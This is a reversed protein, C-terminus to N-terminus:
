KHLNFKEHLTRVADEMQKQDILLWITTNSDASQLIAIHHETLAAVINAMVGPQGNMGGGIVSVKACNPRVSVRINHDQLLRVALTTYQEQVTFNIQSQTVHIFDISIAHDALLQFVQLPLELQQKSQEQESCEEMTVTFQTLGNFHAIAMVQRESTVEVMTTDTVITGIEESFTSRIRLPLKAQWAFQVARPHIVKAGERAMNSIEAYSITTLPKARAVIRPDATLVGSVDTYIDVYEAKLAAGLATATTDSGGRGLTTIEGQSTQGQFGAVVAVNGQGLSKRLREPQIDKILANGFQDNTLIGASAGTFAEASIGNQQLLASLTIASIIEGCALLLDQERVSLPESESRILELLTDTAYPDGLRGMASVVVVVQYGNDRERRIHDVVRNRSKTTTLSSGGFKQVLIRM